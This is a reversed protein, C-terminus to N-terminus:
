NFPLQNINIYDFYDGSELVIQFTRKQESLNPATKIFLTKHDRKEVHLDDRVITCSEDFPSNGFDSYRTSDIKLEVIYWHTGKTTVLASDGEAKFVFEKGSLHIDDGQLGCSLLILFPVALCLKILNKM